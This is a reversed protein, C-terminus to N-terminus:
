RVKRTRKAGARPARRKAPAAETFEFMRFMPDPCDNLLSRMATLKRHLTAAETKRAQVGPKRQLNKLDKTLQDVAKAVGKVNKVRSKAM